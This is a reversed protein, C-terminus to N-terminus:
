KKISFTGFVPEMDSSLGELIVDFSDSGQNLPFSITIKGDELTNLNPNWYLTSRFDQTFPTGEKFEGSPIYFEREVLYGKTFLLDNGQGQRPDELLDAGPNGTKTLINIYASGGILARNALNTIVDIREVEIMNLNMVMLVDTPQGDIFIPNSQNQARGSANGTITGGRILVTPPHQFSFVDGIVQVSPVRGRLFHIANAYGFDERTVPVSYDPKGQYLLTRSDNPKTLSSAEVTIEQLLVEQGLVFQEMMNRAEGVKVIYEFDLEKLHGVPIGSIVKEPREKEVKDDLKILNNKKPSKSNGDASLYAQVFVSVSDYFDLESFLFRGDKDTEGEMVQPFDFYSNVMMTLQHPEKIPNGGLQKVQGSLKLGKEFEISKNREDALRKWSFKRWGQTLLLDDLDKEATENKLDFYYYPNEVLGNLESGLKFHSLINTAHPVLAVQKTDTISVSFNGAVPVGFEDMVDIDMNVMEKPNYSVKDTHFEVLAQAYPHLYILREAVPLGTEEKLTIQTIGPPFDDKEFRITATGNELKISESWFFKGGSIGVLLMNKDTSSNSNVEIIGQLEDSRVDVHLVEGKAKAKPVQIPKWKSQISKVHATYRADKEPIFEFSGMGLPNSEFRLVTDKENKLLYGYFAEGLGKDGTAKFGVKSNIGEVLDGGEPFLSVNLTGDLETRPIFVDKIDGIWIDKAFLYQEGALASRSSFAILSYNGPNLERPLVLDGWGLGQELKITAQVVPERKVNSYLNVYLPVTPTAQLIEMGKELVGYAKIWITDNLLYHSKDTHLYVKEFPNSQKHQTLKEQLKEALDQAQVGLSTLLLGFSLLNRLM